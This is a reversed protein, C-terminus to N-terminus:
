LMSSRDNLVKLTTKAAFSLELWVPTTIFETTTPLDSLIKDVIVQHIIDFEALASYNKRQSYKKIGCKKKQHVIAIKGNSLSSM